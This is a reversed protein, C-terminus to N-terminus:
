GHFTPEPCPWFIRLQLFEEPEPHGGFFVERGRRAQPLPGESPLEPASKEQPSVGFHGM